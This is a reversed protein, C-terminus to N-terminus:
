QALESRMCLIKRMELRGGWEAEGCVYGFHQSGSLIWYLAHFHQTDGAPVADSVSFM